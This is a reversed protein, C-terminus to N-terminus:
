LKNFKYTPVPSPQAFLPTYQEPEPGEIELNYKQILSSVLAFIEMEAVRAGICMRPGIGFPLIMYPHNHLSSTGTSENNKLWREPFYAKPNPYISEDLCYPYSSLEFLTGPPIHHGRLIIEENILRPHAQSVPNIRYSEKMCAKLYTLNKLHQEELPGGQLVSQIEKRLTEQAKPTKGLNYLFWQLSVVTTDAAAMIFGAASELFERETNENGLFHVVYPKVPSKSLTEMNKVIEVFLENCPKQVSKRTQTIRNQIDPLEDPLVSFLKVIL